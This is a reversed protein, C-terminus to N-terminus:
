GRILRIARFLLEKSRGPAHSCGLIPPSVHSPASSDFSLKKFIQLQTSNCDQIDSPWATRGQYILQQMIWGSEKSFRTLGQRGRFRRRFWLHGTLKGDLFPSAPRWGRNAIMSYPRKNISLIAQHVFLKSNFMAMYNYNIYTHKVHHNGMAM